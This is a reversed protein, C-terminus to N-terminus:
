PSDTVPSAPTTRAFRPSFLSSPLMPPLMPEPASSIPLSAVMSVGAPLTVAPKLADILRLPLIPTRSASWSPNGSNQALNETGLNVIPAHTSCNQHVGQTFRAQERRREYEGSTACFDAADAERAFARAAHRRRQFGSLDVKPRVEVNLEFAICLQMVLDRQHLPAAAHRGGHAIDEGRFAAVEKPDLDMAPM